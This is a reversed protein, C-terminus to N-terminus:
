LCGRKGLPNIRPRPGAAPRPDRPGAAGPPRDLRHGPSPAAGRRVPKLM